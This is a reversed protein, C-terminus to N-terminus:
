LNYLKKFVELSNKLNTFKAVKKYVQFKITSESAKINLMYSILIDSLKIKSIENRDIEILETVKTSNVRSLMILNLKTESFCIICYRNSFEAAMGMFAAKLLSPKTMAIFYNNTNLELNKLMLEVNEQNMKEM